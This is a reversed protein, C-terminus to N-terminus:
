KATITFTVTDAYSGSKMDEPALGTYNIKIDRSLGGIQTSNVDVATQDSTTLSGSFSGYNMTYALVDAPNSEEHGLKGGNASRVSITYGTKSNSKELTTGVLLNSQSTSLDLTTSAANPNVVISLKPSVSGSLNLSGSTAAFTSLSLTTLALTTLLNKM